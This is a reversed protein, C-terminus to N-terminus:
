IAPPDVGPRAPAGWSPGGPLRARWYRAAARWGLSPLARWCLERWVLRLVKGFAPERLRATRRNAEGLRALWAAAWDLYEADPVLWSSRRTITFHRELDRADYSVGLEALQPEIVRLNEQKRRERDGTARSGHKRNLTLVEPLSGVAHDRALRVFLEYDNSLALDERYRTGRLLATRGLTSPHNLYCRFLLRAATEDPDSPYRRVRRRVRGAADTARTWSGILAFGPNADLFAVQRELRRPLALDDSDLAALYEGRALDLSQNHVRAIGQNRLNREIRVRPDGRYSELVPAVGPETSGDDILVLELDRYSQALVSEIAERLFPVRNYVPVVV